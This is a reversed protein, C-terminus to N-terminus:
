ACPQRGRWIASARPTLSLATLGHIARARL